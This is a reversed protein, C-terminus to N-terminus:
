AQAAAVAELIVRGLCPTGREEFRYSVRVEPAALEIVRGLDIPTAVLIVECDAREITAQLDALQSDAYGLAPLVPGIHPYAAFAAAIQGVAHPRPDIIEAAGCRQAALFGAGYDRGGHTITPGDEIVLVRRGAIRAPDDVEIALSAEIVVADPNRAAINTKLVALQDPRAQDIKGIVLVDAEDLNWRSPFYDLEDGARLPDLVTILLDPRIFPTDNNGGDWLIVDSEREAAALIRAYDAGAFVVNGELVHPEYEEMEEITCNHDSLDQVTEFRQVVQDRLNGYPMPHRIVGPRLGADRLQAAVFRALPSKGCGTRVACIAICPKSSELLGAEPDFTHFEAGWAAVREQQEDVYGYPVDSYAFIVQDVGAERVVRELDGEPVIPIGSPYLRGAMVPPYERQDIHPIQAASFAVVEINEDDRYSTNFVHFDRGGAGMIVIRKRTKISCRRTTRRQEENNKAFEIIV